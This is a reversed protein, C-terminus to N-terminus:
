DLTLCSQERSSCSWARASSFIGRWFIIVFGQDRASLFTKKNSSSHLGVRITWMSFCGTLDNSTPDLVSWNFNPSVAGKKRRQGVTQWESLLWRQIWWRIETAPCLWHCDRMHTTTLIWGGRCVCYLCLLFRCYWLWPVIRWGEPDCRM